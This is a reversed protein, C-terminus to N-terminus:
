LRTTGTRACGPGGRKARSRRAARWAKRTGTRSRGPGGARREAEGRQAGFRSAKPACRLRRHLRAHRTFEREGAYRPRTAEARTSRAVLRKLSLNGPLPNARKTEVRARPNSELEGHTEVEIASCDRQRAAGLLLSDIERTDHPIRPNLDVACWSEPVRRELSCQISRSRRGRRRHTSSESFQVFSANAPIRCTTRKLRRM